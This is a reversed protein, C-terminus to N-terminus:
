RHPDQPPGEPPIVQHLGEQLRYVFYPKLLSKHTQTIIILLRGVYLICSNLSVISVSDCLAVRCHDCLILSQKVQGGVVGM